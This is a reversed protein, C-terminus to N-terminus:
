TISDYNERKNFNEDRANSNTQKIYLEDEHIM